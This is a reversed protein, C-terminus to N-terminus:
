DKFQTENPVIRVFHQQPLIPTYSNVVEKHQKMKILTCLHLIPSMINVLILHVVLIRVNSTTNIVNKRFLIRVRKESVVMIRAFHYKLSSVNEVVNSYYGFEKCIKEFSNNNKSTYHDNPLDNLLLQVAKANSDYRLTLEDCYAHSTEVLTKINHSDSVIVDFPYGLMM